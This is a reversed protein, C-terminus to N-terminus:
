QSADKSDDADSAPEAAKIEAKMEDPQAKARTQQMPLDDGPLMMRVTVRRNKARDGESLEGMGIWNIRALDVGHQVLFRRVAGVRRESLRENHVAPGSADTYGELDVTLEHNDALEKILAALATQAEDSLDARDLGLPVHLTEV